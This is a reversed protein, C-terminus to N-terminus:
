SPNTQYHREAVSLKKRTALGGWKFANKRWPSSKKAPAYVGTAMEFSRRLRYEAVGGM